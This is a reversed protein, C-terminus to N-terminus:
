YLMLSFIDKKDAAEKDLELRYTNKNAIGTFDNM